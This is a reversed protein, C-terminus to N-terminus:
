YGFARFGNEHMTGYVLLAAILLLEIVYVVLIHKLIWEIFTDYLTETLSTKPKNM